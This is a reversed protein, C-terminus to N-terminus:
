SNDAPLFVNSANAPTFSAVREPECAVSIVAEYHVEGDIANYTRSFSALKAHKVLAEGRVALINRVFFFIANLYKRREKPINSFCLADFVESVAGVEAETFYKRTCITTLPMRNEKGIM